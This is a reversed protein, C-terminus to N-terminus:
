TWNEMVILYCGAVFWYVYFFLVLFFYPVNIIQYMFLHREKALLIQAYKCCLFLNQEIDLGLALLLIM